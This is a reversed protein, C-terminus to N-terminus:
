LNTISHLSVLSGTRAVFSKDSDPAPRSRSFILGSTLLLEYFLAIFFLYRCLYSWQGGHLGLYVPQRARQPQAPLTPQRLEM